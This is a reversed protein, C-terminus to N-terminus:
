RETGGLQSLASRIVDRNEAITDVARVVDACCCDEELEDCLRCVGSEGLRSLARRIESIAYRVGDRWQIETDDPDLDQPAPMDPPVERAELADLAEVVEPSPTARLRARLARFDKAKYQVLANFDFPGCDEGWVGVSVVEDDPAGRMDLMDAVAGLLGTDAEETGAGAGERTPARLAHVESTPDEDACALTIDAMEDALAERVGMLYDMSTDGRRLEEWAREITAQAVGKALAHIAEDPWYIRVYGVPERGEDAIALIRRAARECHQGFTRARTTYSRDAVIAERVVEAVRELRPDAM